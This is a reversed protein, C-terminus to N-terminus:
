GSSCELLKKAEIFANKASLTNLCDFHKKPCKQQGVHTCPRCSLTNNEMVKAETEYPFFGFQEVTSGFFVLLKKKLAVGLHMISSDNCILLQAKELILATEQFHTKGIYNYVYSCNNLIYDGTETENPGGLLVIKYSKALLSILEVFHEKPWQKTAHAAGPAICIYNESFFPFPTNRTRDSIFFDLSYDSSTIGLPALTDVYKQSVSRIPSNFKKYGFNMFLFRKLRDKKYRVSHQVSLKRTLWFSRQNNQLDICVDFSKTQLETLVSDNFLYIEDIEPHTEIMVKFAPKVVFSISANPHHSKIAKIVPTTLLVDGFSSLRIILFRNKETHLM